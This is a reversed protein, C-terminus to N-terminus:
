ASYGLQPGVLYMSRGKVTKGVQHWIGNSAVSPLPSGGCSRNKRRSMKWLVLIPIKRSKIAEDSSTRHLSLYKLSRPPPLSLSVRRARACSWKRYKQLVVPRDGARLDKEDENKLAGVHFVYGHILQLPLSVAIRKAQNCTRSQPNRLSGNRSSCLVIKLRM